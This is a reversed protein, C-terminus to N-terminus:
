PLGQGPPRPLGEDTYLREVLHLAPNGDDAYLWKVLHLAAYGLRPQAVIDPVASQAGRMVAYRWELSGLLM